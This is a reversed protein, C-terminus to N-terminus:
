RLFGPALGGDIPIIHGTTRGLSAVLAVVGDAVHEPLVELGLL